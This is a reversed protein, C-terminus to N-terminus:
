RVLQSVPVLTIGQGSLTPLTETLTAITAQHPHCIAIASGNKKAMRVAQALQGRIYASNQENDLFVDRRGTKVGMERALRQGVTKPTTVSDIFFLGRGKLMELVVRMKDEHETFESGMHNNVGIASPIQRTYEGLHESIAAEDMSLLLGNAELRRQPWGKPQMPIHIMTEIGSRAAFSAVERDSRLGPIISFTVPFGIGALARAQQLNSGMDDIIVALQGQVGDHSKSATKKGAEGTATESLHKRDGTGTGTGSAVPAPAAPAAPRRAEQNKPPSTETHRPSPPPPHPSSMMRYLGIALLVITLVVLAAIRGGGRQQKQRKNGSRTM